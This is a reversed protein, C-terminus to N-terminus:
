QMKFKIPINFAVNVPNGRQLGPTWDPSSRIVKLVEADLSPDIKRAIEVDEVKGEKTVLFSVYVTGHIGNEMAISPYKVSAQAWKAFEKIGGGQFVPMEEVIQFAQKGKQIQSDNYNNIMAAAEEPNEEEPEKLKQTTNGHLIFKIPMAFAVNVPKGKQMGPTWAPSTKLARMVEQDLIPDVSRIIEPQVVQGKTDVIFTIYVTGQIKKTKADAPYEVNKQIWNRYDEITGNQFKPMDKVVTFVDEGNYKLDIPMLAKEVMKGDIRIKIEDIDAKSFGAKTLEKEVAMKAIEEKSKKAQDQATASWGSILIMLSIVPLALLYNWGANRTQKNKFLMSLRRKLLSKKNFSHMLLLGPVLFQHRILTHSYEAKDTGATEEDAIYEHVLRIRSTLLYVVPNYFFLIRIILMLINDLSHLQRCHVEEHKLILLTEASHPDFPAPFYITRFFSFASWPKNLPVIKLGNQYLAKGRRAWIRLRVLQAISVLALFGA